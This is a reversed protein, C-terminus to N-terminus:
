ISLFRLINHVGGAADKEKQLSNQCFMAEKAQTAKCNELIM